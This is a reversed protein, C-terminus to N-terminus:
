PFLHVCHSPKVGAGSQSPSFNLMWLFSQATGGLLLTNALHIVVDVNNNTLFWVGLLFYAYINLFSTQGAWYGPASVATTHLRGTRCVCAVSKHIVSSVNPHKLYTRISLDAQQSHLPSSIIEMSFPLWIFGRTCSISASKGGRSSQVLCRLWTVALLQLAGVMNALVKTM